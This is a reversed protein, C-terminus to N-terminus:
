RASAASFILKKSIDIKLIGCASQVLNCTHILRQATVSKEHLNEVEIQRNVFLCREVSAQRHAVLLLDKVIVWMLRYHQNKAM